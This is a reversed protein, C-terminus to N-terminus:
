LVRPKGVESRALLLTASAQSPHVLEISDGEPIERKLHRIEGKRRVLGCVRHLLLSSYIFSIYRYHSYCFTKQTNSYRFRCDSPSVSLGWSSLPLSWPSEQPTFSLVHYAFYSAPPALPKPLLSQEPNIWDNDKHNQVSEQVEFKHYKMWSTCLSVYLRGNLWCMLEVYQSDHSLFM